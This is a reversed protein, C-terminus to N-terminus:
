DSDVTQEAVQREVLENVFEALEDEQHEQIRKDAQLDLLNEFSHKATRAEELNCVRTARCLTCVTWCYKDTFLFSKFLDSQAVLADEM